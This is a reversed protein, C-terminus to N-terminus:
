AILPARPCAPQSLAEAAAERRQGKSGTPYHGRLSCVMISVSAGSLSGRQIADSGGARGRDLQGRTTSPTGCAVRCPPQAALREVSAPRRRRPARADDARRAAALRRQELQDAAELLRRRRRDGDVPRRRGGLPEGSRASAAARGAAATASPARCRRGPARAPAADRRALRPAARAAATRASRGRRAERAARGYSSDPPMRWRTANAACAARRCAPAAARRATRAREVRDRAGLM